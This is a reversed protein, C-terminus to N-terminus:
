NVVVESLINDRKQEWYDNKIGSFGHHAIEPQYTDNTVCLWWVTRLYKGASACLAQLASLCQDERTQLYFFRRVFDPNKRSKLVTMAATVAARRLRTRGAKSIKTKGHYQGSSREGPELGAVSVLARADDFSKPDGLIGLLVANQVSSSGHISDLNSAYPIRQYASLLQERLKNQQDFFLQLREVSAAIRAFLAPRAEVYGWADNSRVYTWVAKCRKVSLNKGRFSKRVHAVFEEDELSMIMPLNILISRSSNGFPESYIGYYGPLITELFAHIRNKEAAILDVLEQYEHACARLEIWETQRPLQTFSFHLSSALTAIHAADRPDNKHGSEGAIHRQHGVARNEVLRYEYGKRELLSAIPMWFHSAGEMFFVIRDCDTKQRRLSELEELLQEVGELTHPIKGRIILNLNGDLVHFAHRKKALDFGCIMTKGSVVQKKRELKKHERKLGKSYRM